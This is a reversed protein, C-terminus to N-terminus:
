KREARFDAKFEEEARPLLETRSSCATLRTICDFQFDTLASQEEPSEEPTFSALLQIRRQIIARNPHRALAYANSYTQRVSELFAADLSPWYTGGVKSTLWFGGEPTIWQRVPLAVDIGFGKSIVTGHAVRFSATVGASRLGVLELVRTGIHPGPEFVFGPYFLSLHSIQISYSCDEADCNGYWEGWRGWRTMLKQADSWSSRNLTLTKIDALLAEARMRFLWQSAEIAIWGVFLMLFVFTVIRGTTRKWRRRTTM